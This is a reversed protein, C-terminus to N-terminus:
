TTPLHFFLILFLTGSNVLSLSSLIFISTLEQMLSTSLIPILFLLFGQADLGHSHPLCATLLNPLATVMFVATSSLCLLLLPSHTLQPLSHPHTPFPVAQRLTHSDHFPHSHSSVTSALTFGSSPSWYWTELQQNTISVPQMCASQDLCLCWQGSGPSVM